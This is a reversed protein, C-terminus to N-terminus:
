SSSIKLLGEVSENIFAYAEYGVTETYVVMPTLVFDLGPKLSQFNQAIGKITMIAEEDVHFLIGDVKDEGFDMVNFGLDTDYLSGKVWAHKSVVTLGRKLIVNSNYQNAVIGYSFFHM